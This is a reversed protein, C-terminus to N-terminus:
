EAGGDYGALFAKTIESQPHEFVEEPTGFEEAIGNAMFLVKDAYTETSRQLMEKLDNYLVTEYNQFKAM